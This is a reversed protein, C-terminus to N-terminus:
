KTSDKRALTAEHNDLTQLARLLVRRGQRRNRKDYVVIRGSFAIVDRSCYLRATKNHLIKKRLTKM